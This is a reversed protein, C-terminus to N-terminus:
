RKKTGGCLLLVIREGDKGFYIRYGPGWDLKLELVSEGVGAVNAAGGHKLRDLAVAIKAQAKVDLDRFWTEVPAGGQTDVYFLLEIEDM